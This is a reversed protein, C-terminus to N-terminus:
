MTINKGYHTLVSNAILTFFEIIFFILIVKKNKDDYQKAESPESSIQKRVLNFIIFFVAIVPEIPFMLINTLDELLKVTGEVLVNNEFPNVTPNRATDTIQIDAFVTTTFVFMFMSTILFVQILKRKDIKM